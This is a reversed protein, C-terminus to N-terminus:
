AATQIDCVVSIIVM